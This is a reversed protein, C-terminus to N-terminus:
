GSLHAKGYKSWLHMMLTDFEDDWDVKFFM